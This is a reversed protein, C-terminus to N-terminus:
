KRNCSRGSMYYCRNCRCYYSGITNVANGYSSCSHSGTTCRSYPQTFGSKCRCLYSGITNSCRSNSPCNHSGVSCEDIDVCTSPGQNRWGALCICRYSHPTNSCRSNSPCSHSGVLCEDVDICTHAGRDRWGPPQHSLQALMLKRQVNM